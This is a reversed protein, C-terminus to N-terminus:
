SLFIDIAMDIFAFHILCISSFMVIVALNWSRKMKERREMLSNILENIAISAQIGLLIAPIGIALGLILQNM